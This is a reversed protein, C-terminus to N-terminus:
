CHDDSWSLDISVLQVSDLFFGTILVLGSYEYSGTFSMWEKLGINVSLGVLPLNLSVDVITTWFLLPMGVIGTYLASFGWSWM